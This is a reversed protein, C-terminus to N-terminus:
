RPAIEIDFRTDGSVVADKFELQGSTRTPNVLRYGPKSVLLPNVGDYTWGFRYFGGVDTHVATHGVESGCADCYVEVNEVPIRGVSTTEFVVGSLTYPVRLPPPAPPPAPAPVLATPVFPVTPSITDAGCASMWVAFTVWVVIRKM